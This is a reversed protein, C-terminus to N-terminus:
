GQQTISAPLRKIYGLTTIIVSARQRYFKNIKLIFSIDPGNEEQLIIAQQM